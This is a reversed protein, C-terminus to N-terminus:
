GHEPRAHKRWRNAERGAEQKAIRTRRAEGRRGDRLARDFQQTLVLLMERRSLVVQLPLQQQQLAAPFQPLLASSKCDAAAAAAFNQPDAAVSPLMGGPGNNAENLLGMQTALDLLPSHFRARSDSGLSSNAQM